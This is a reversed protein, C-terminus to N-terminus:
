DGHSHPPWLPIPDITERNGSEDSISILTAENTVYALQERLLTKAEDPSEAEVISTSILMFKKM